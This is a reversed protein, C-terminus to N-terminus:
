SWSLADQLVSSSSPLWARSVVMLKFRHKPISWVLPSSAQDTYHTIIGCTRPRAFGVWPVPFSIYHQRNSSLPLNWNYQESQESQSDM